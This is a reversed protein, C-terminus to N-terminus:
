QYRRRVLKIFTKAKKQKAKEGWGQDAAVGSILYNRAEPFGSMGNLDQVTKNFLEQDGSFLENITLIKENLGM